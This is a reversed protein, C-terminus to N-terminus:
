CLGDAVKDILFVAPLTSFTNVIGYVGTALLSSTNGSLGLQAFITPAYYIMANCGMFQQFFMICCGIALRKFAPWTSVLAVHQAMYLSMGSKGPYMDKAHSQDFLVEAKIMLYEERLSESDPHVRRLQALASLAKEEKHRMLFFRPSEPFFIMGIGLILAPAIQLAFPVRWSADSQGTCGHPGVDKTPDFTPNSATGSHLPYRPRVTHRRHVAHWIRALLQHPHGPHHESPLSDSLQCPNINVRGEGCGSVNNCFM